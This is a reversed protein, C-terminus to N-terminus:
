IGYGVFMRAGPAIPEDCGAAELAVASSCASFRLTTTRMNCFLPIAPVQIKGVAGDYLGIQVKFEQITDPNPIPIGGSSSGSGKCM